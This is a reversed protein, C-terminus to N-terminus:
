LIDDRESLPRYKTTVRKWIVFTTGSNNEPDIINDLGSFMVVFKANALNGSDM